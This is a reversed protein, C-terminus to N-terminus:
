RRKEPNRGSLPASLFQGAVQWLAQNTGCWSSAYFPSKACVKIAEGSWMM